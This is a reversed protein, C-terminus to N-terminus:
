PEGTQKQAKQLWSIFYTNEPDLTVAKQFYDVAQKKENQTWALAGLNFYAMAYDPQIAIVKKYYYEAEAYNKTEHYLAGLLNLAKLLNPDYAVAQELLAIAADLDNAQKFCTGLNFHLIALTEQVRKHEKLNMAITMHYIAPYWDGPEALGLETKYITEACWSMGLGYQAAFNEPERDIIREYIRRASHFDGAELLDNGKRLARSTRSYYVLFLATCLAAIGIIVVSVLIVRNYRGPNKM